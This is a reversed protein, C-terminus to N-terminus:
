LRYKLFGEPSHCCCLRVRRRMYAEADRPFIACWLDKPRNGRVGGSPNFGLTLCKDFTTGDAVGSLTSALIQQLGSHIRLYASKDDTPMTTWAGQAAYEYKSLVLCDEPLIMGASNLIPKRLQAWSQELKAGAQENIAIGSSQPSWVQEPDVENELTSISLFDDQTPDRIDDFDIGVFQSKEGGAARAPDYHRAEFPSKTIIGHAIIGRPEEGTRVL